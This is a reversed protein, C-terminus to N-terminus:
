IYIYIYIYIYVYEIIRSIFTRERWKGVAAYHIATQRSDRPTNFYHLFSLSLSFLFLFFFFGRRTFMTLSLFRDSKKENELVLRSILLREKIRLFESEKSM